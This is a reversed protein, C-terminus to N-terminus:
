PFYSCYFGNLSTMIDVLKAKFNEIIKRDSVTTALERAWRWESVQWIIIIIVNLYLIMGTVPSIKCNMCPLESMTVNDSFIRNSMAVQLVM